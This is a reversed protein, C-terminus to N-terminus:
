RIKVCIVPQESGGGRASAASIDLTGITYVGRSEPLVYPIFEINVATWFINHICATSVARPKPHVERKRWRKPWESSIVRRYKSNCSGSPYGLWRAVVVYFCIFIPWGRGMHPLGHNTKLCCGQIKFCESYSGYNCQNINRKKEKL